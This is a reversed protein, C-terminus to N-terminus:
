LHGAVLSDLLKLGAQFSKAKEGPRATQWVNDELDARKVPRALPEAVAPRVLDEDGAGPRRALAEVAALVVSPFGFERLRALSWGPAKEPVDRLYAVVRADM